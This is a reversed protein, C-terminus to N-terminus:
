KADPARLWGVVEPGGPLVRYRETKAVETALRVVYADLAREIEADTCAAGSTTIGHRAIARDTMGGFSLGEFPNPHRYLAVFADVMARRGAGGTDVLTGDIDFLFVTPKM